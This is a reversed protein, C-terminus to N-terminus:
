LDLGIAVFLFFLQIPRLALARATRAIACAVGLQCTVSAAQYGLPTLPLARFWTMNALIALLGYPYGFDIIPRYGHSVLYNITLNTGQDNFAFGRFDLLQPLELLDWLLVM